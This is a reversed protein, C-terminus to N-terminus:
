WRMRSKKGAEAMAMEKREREQESDTMGLTESNWFGQSLLERGLHTAKWLALLLKPGGKRATSQEGGGGGIAWRFWPSIKPVVITILTLKYKLKMQSEEEVREVV